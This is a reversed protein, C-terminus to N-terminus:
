FIKIPTKMIDRQINEAEVWFVATLDGVMEDTNFNSTIRGLLGDEEYKKNGTSKIYEIIRDLHPKVANQKDEEVLYVYCASVYGNLTRAYYDWRRGLETEPFYTSLKSQIGKAELFYWNKINEVETNQEEQTPLTKKLISGLSISLSKSIQRNITEDIKLMLEVKIDLKKKNNQWRNTLWTGLVFSIVGGVLLLILPYLLNEELTAM